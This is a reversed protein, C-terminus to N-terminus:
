EDKALVTVNFSKTTKNYTVECITEMGSIVSSFLNKWKYGEFFIKGDKEVIKAKYNIQSSVWYEAEDGEIDWGVFDRIDTETFGYVGKENTWGYYGNPIPETKTAEKCGAFVFVTLLLMVFCLLKSFWKKM